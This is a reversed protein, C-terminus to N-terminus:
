YLRAATGPQSEELAGEGSFSLDKDLHSPLLRTRRLLGGLGGLLILIWAERPEFRPVLSCRCLRLIFLELLIFHHHQLGDIALVKYLM